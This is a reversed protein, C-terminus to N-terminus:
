PSNGAKTKELEAVGIMEEILLLVLQEQESGVPEARIDVLCSPEGAHGAVEERLEVIVEEGTCGDQRQYKGQEGGNGIYPQFPQAHVAIGGQGHCKDDGGDLGDEM